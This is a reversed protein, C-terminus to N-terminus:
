RALPTQQSALSVAVLNISEKSDSEPSGYNTRATEAALCEKLEAVVQTMTPREFSTPSVCAMAVELVKWASNIDFDEVLRPDVIKKIDGNDLMSSVWQSIHIKEHTKMIVSRGTIVELLVVGFSYM